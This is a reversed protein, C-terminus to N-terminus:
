ALRHGHGEFRTQHHRDLKETATGAKEQVRDAGVTYGSSTNQLGGNETFNNYLNIIILRLYPKNTAM